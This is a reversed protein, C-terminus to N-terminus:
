FGLMSVCSDVALGYVFVVAPMILVLQSVAALCQSKM